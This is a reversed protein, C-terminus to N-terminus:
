EGEDILEFVHLDVPNKRGVIEKLEECSFSTRLVGIECGNVILVIEKM